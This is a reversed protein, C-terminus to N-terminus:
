LTHLLCYLLLVSLASFWLSFGTMSERERIESFWAKLPKCALGEVRSQGKM